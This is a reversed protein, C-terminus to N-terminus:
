FPRERVAIMYIGTFMALVVVTEVPDRGSVRASVDHTRSTARFRPIRRRNSPWPQRSMEARFTQHEANDGSQVDPLTSMLASADDVHGTHHVDYAHLIGRITTPELQTSSM